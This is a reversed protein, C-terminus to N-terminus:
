KGKGRMKSCLEKGKQTLSGGGRGPGIRTLLGRRRAQFIMTRIKAPKANLKKAIDKIPQFSKQSCLLVYESVVRAYDEDSFSKRGRKSKRRARFSARTLHKSLAEFLPVHAAARSFIWDFFDRADAMPTKMSISRVLKATLGGVPARARIGLVHASWEGKRRFPDARMKSEFPYIRVEGVIVLGQQPLLRYAVMWDENLPAEVWFEPVIVDKRDGVVHPLLEKEQIGLRLAYARSVPLRYYVAEVPLREKSM